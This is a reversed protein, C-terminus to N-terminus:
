AQVAGADQGESRVGPLKGARLPPAQEPEHRVAFRGKRRLLPVDFVAHDGAGEYVGIGGARVQGDSLVEEASTGRETRGKDAM